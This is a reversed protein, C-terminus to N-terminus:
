LLSNSWASSKLSMSLDIRLEPIYYFIFDKGIMERTRSTAKDPQEELSSFKTSGFVLIATNKQGISL